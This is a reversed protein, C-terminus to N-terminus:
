AHKGTSFKFDPRAVCIIIKNTTIKTSKNENKALPKIKIYWYVISLRVIEYM